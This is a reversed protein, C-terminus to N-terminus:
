RARLTSATASLSRGRGVSSPFGLAPGIGAVPEGRAQATETLGRRFDVILRMWVVAAHWGPAGLGGLMTAGVAIEDLHMLLPDFEAALAIIEERTVLRPGYM